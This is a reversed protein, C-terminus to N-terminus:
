RDDDWVNRQRYSRSDATCLLHLHLCAPVAAKFTYGVPKIPDGAFHSPAVQAAHVNIGHADGTHNVLDIKVEDGQVVQLVPGPVTGDYTWANYTMGGGVSVRKREATLTFTKASAHASCPLGATSIVALM